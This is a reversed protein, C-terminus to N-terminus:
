ETVRRLLKTLPVHAGDFFSFQVLERRTFTIIQTCLPFCLLVLSLMNHLFSLLQSLASHLLFPLFLLAQSLLALFM